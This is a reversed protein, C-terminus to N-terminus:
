MTRRWRYQSDGKENRVPLNMVLSYPPCYIQKRLRSERVSERVSERMRNTEMKNLDCLLITEVESGEQQPSISFREARFLSPPSNCSIIQVSLCLYCSM